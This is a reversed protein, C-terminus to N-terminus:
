DNSLHFPLLFNLVCSLGCFVMELIYLMNTIYVKYKYTLRAHTLSCILLTPAEQNTILAESIHRNIGWLKTWQNCLPSLLLIVLYILVFPLPFALWM